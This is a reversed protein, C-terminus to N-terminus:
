WPACCTSHGPGRSASASRRNKGGSSPREVEEEWWHRFEDCAQETRTMFQEIPSQVEEEVWRKVVMCEAM